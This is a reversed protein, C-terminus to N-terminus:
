ECILDEIRRYDGGHGKMYVQDENVELIEADKGILVWNKLRFCDGVCNYGPVPTSRFSRVALFGLEECIKRSNERVDEKASVVLYGKGDFKYRIDSALYGTDDLQVVKKAIYGYHGAFAAGSFLALGLVLAKM